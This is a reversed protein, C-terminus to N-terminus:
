FKITIQKEDFNIEISTILVNDANKPQESTIEFDKIENTLNYFCESEVGDWESQGNNYYILNINFNNISEVMAGINKVGWSRTEFHFSWDIIATPQIENISYITLEKKTKLFKEIGFVDFDIYKNERTYTTFKM